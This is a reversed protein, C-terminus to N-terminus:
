CLPQTYTADPMEFRMVEWVVSHQLYELISEFDKEAVPSWIIERTM